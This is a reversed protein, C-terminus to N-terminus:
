LGIIKLDVVTPNKGIKEAITKHEKVVWDFFDETIKSKSTLVHYTKKTTINGMIKDSKYLM